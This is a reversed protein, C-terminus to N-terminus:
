NKRTKGLLVENKKLLSATSSTSFSIESYIFDGWGWSKSLTLLM